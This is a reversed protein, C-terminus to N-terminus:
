FPSHEQVGEGQLNGFATPDFGRVADGVVDVVVVVVVVVGVTATDLQLEAQYLSM